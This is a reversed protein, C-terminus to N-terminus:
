KWRATAKRVWSERCSSFKEGALRLLIRALHTGVAAGQGSSPSKPVLWSPQACGPSVARHGPLYPSMLAVIPADMRSM